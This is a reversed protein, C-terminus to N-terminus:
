VDQTPLGIKKLLPKWRPDSRLTRFSADTLITTIYPDRAAVAKDIWAFARDHEGRFARLGACTMRDGDGFQKEFEETARTSAATNGLMQEAYADAMQRYYDGMGTLEGVKGYADRLGQANGRALNIAAVTLYLNPGDAQLAHARAIAAEAEDLRGSAECIAALNQVATVNLPDIEVLKKFLAYAEEFRGMGMQVYGANSIVIPSMPDAALAREMTREAEAFEWDALQIISLRSIATALGPDLESARTLMERAHRNAQQIESASSMLDAEKMYVLGMEAYAPASEPALEIAREVQERARRVPEKGGVRLNYRAQLILDYAETSPNNSAHTGLLTVQLERAVSKAIDDQVAFIDDLTRDYTQSWLHFGDSAKVLQATIRVQKGSKRVSGELINAVGLKEAVERLDENKGKFSFSSTRGAVKLDPIKVLANLLEETLGDSFYEQEKDSSMNVFPLVALSNTPDGSAAPAHNTGRGFAFFLAAAVAAAAAAVIMVRKRRSAKARALGLSPSSGMTTVESVGSEVEKRLAQLENRVDKASQFRHEPDKELCHSVIRGLHHPLNSKVQTLPAPTASLIASSIDANTPGTFPRQGSTMEYLMIGLSFIDSRPDVNQGRLQEPSMYPVTGMIQGETTIPSTRTQDLDSLADSVALKALGFDLVKPRGDRAILINAPKLDRHVIGKEHAASLADAGAIGIDFVKALPLGEGTILENLGQGDVLEMTLFHVGQDEEVSYLHVIHPHNLAAVTKAERQFRELRAPDSAMETPLVKLAVDRELRTDRARYVEGMGGRGILAVLQYHGLTRGLM